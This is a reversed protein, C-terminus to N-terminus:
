LVDLYQRDDGVASCCRWPRGGGRSVKPPDQARGPGWLQSPARWLAPLSPLAPGVPAWPVPSAQPARWLRPASSNALTQRNKSTYGWSLTFGYCIMKVVVGMWHKSFSHSLRKSGTGSGKFIQDNQDTCNLVYIM